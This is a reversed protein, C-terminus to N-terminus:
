CISIIFDRAYISDLKTNTNISAFLISTLWNHLSKSTFMTGVNINVSADLFMRNLNSFASGGYIKSLISSALFTKAKLKSVLFFYINERISFKNLVYAAENCINIM